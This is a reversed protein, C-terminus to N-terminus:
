LRADVEWEEGCDDCRVSITWNGEADGYEDTIRQHLHDCEVHERQLERRTFRERCDDCACATCIVFRAEDDVEVWHEDVRYSRHQCTEIAETTRRNPNM